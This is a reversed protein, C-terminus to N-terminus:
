VSRAVRTARKRWSGLTTWLEVPVLLAVPFWVGVATALIVEREWTMLGQLRLMDIPATLRACLSLGVIWAIFTGRPSLSLLAVPLAAYWPWYGPAIVLYVVAIAASARLLSRADVVYRCALAMSAGFVVMVMLSLLQATAAESHSQTLYWYLVGPTSPLMSPRGHTRLGDFTAM